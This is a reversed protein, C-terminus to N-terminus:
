LQKRVERIFKEAHRRLLRKTLNSNGEKLAKITKRFDEKFELTFSKDRALAWVRMAQYRLMGLAKCLMQNRTAGNIVEHFESDLRMLSKPDTENKMRQLIDEMQRLEEQTVRESAWQGAIEVLSNRLEFTDRLKVFDIEAVYTTGYPVREVLGEAELYILAERIPTKGIGFQDALEKEQLIQGPPYEMLLIKEKLSTYIQKALPSKRQIGTLKNTDINM